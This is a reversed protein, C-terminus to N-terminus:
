AGLNTQKKVYAVCNKEIEMKVNEDIRIVLTKDKVNVITGHIGGTTVIEDNKNVYKKDKEQFFDTLSVLIEIPDPTNKHFDSDKIEFEKDGGWFVQLARVITSKGSNNKGILAFLKTPNLEGTNKICM